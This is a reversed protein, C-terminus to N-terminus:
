YLLGYRGRKEAEKRRRVTDRIIQQVTIGDEEYPNHCADGIQDLADPDEFWIVNEAIAELTWEGTSKQRWFANRGSYGTTDQAVLGDLEDDSTHSLYVRKVSPVYQSWSNIWKKELARFNPSEEDEDVEDLGFMNGSFHISISQLQPYHILSSAWGPLLIDPYFVEDDSEGNNEEDSEEEGSGKNHEEMSKEDSEEDKEARSEKTGGEDSEEDSDIQISPNDIALLLRGFLM